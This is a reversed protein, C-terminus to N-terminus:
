FNFPNILMCLLGYLYPRISTKLYQSVSLVILQQFSLLQSIFVFKITKYIRVAVFKFYNNFIISVYVFLAIFAANISSFTSHIYKSNM